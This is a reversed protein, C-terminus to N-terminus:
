KLILLRGQEAGAAMCAVPEVIYDRGTSRWALAGSASAYRLATRLLERTIHCQPAPPKAIQPSPAIDRLHHCFPCRTVIFAYHDSFTQVDARHDSYRSLTYALAELMVQVRAEPTPTEYFFQTGWQERSERLLEEWLGRGIQVKIAQAGREGLKAELADLLAAYDDFSFQRSANDPPPADILATLGARELVAALLADNTAARITDLTVRAFSNPYFLQDNPEPM